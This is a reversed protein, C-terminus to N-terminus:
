LGEDIAIGGIGSVSSDILSALWGSHMCVPLPAALWRVMMSDSCEFDMYANVCDSGELIVFAHM